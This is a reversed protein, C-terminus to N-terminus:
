SNLVVSEFEANDLFKKLPVKDGDIVVHNIYSMSGGHHGCNGFKIQIGMDMRNFAYIACRAEWRAEYAYREEACADVLEQWTKGLAPVVPTQQVQKLKAKAMTICNEKEANTCRLRALSLSQERISANKIGQSVFPSTVSNHREDHFHNRARKRDYERMKHDHSAYFFSCLGLAKMSKIWEQDQTIKLRKAQARRYRNHEAKYAEILKLAFTTSDM